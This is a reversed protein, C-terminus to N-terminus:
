AADELAGIEDDGGALSAAEKVRKTALKIVKDTQAVRAIESELKDKDIDKLKRGKPYKESPKALSAQIHLRALKRAEREVPTMSPGTAAAETFVYAMAYEAVARLAEAMTPAGEGGTKAKAIKARVNNGINEAFTQNLVKAEIENLTHGASYPQPVVISQELVTITKHDPM